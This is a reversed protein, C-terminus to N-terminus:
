PKDIQSISHISVLIFYQITEKPTYYKLMLNGRYLRFSVKNKGGKTLKTKEKTLKSWQMNGCEEMYELHVILSMENDVYQMSNM